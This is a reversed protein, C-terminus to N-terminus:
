WLAVIVPNVQTLETRRRGGGRKDKKVLAKASVVMKKSRDEASEVADKAKDVVTESVDKIKSKATDLAGKPEEKLSSFLLYIYSGHHHSSSIYLLSLAITLFLGINCM